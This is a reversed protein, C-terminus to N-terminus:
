RKLLTNVINIVIVLIGAGWIPLFFLYGGFQSQTLWGAVPRSRFRILLDMLILAAGVSIMVIADGLKLVLGGIGAIAGTAVLMAIGLANGRIRLLTM